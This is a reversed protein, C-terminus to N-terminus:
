VLGGIPINAQLGRITTIEEFKQIGSSQNFQMCSMGGLM